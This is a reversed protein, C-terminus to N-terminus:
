EHNRIQIIDVKQWFTVKVVIKGKKALHKDTAVIEQAQKSYADHFLVLLAEETSLKKEHVYDIFSWTEQVSLSLFLVIEISLLHTNGSQSLIDIKLPLRFLIPLINKINDTHQKSQVRKQLFTRIPDKIEQISSLLLRQTQDTM